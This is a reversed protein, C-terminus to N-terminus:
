VRSRANANQDRPEILRFTLSWGFLLVAVVGFFVKEFGIIDVLAGVGASFLVAPLAMGLGLTSLYIPQHDADAIELTYNSFTRMTVPTLGLLFFVVQFGFQSTETAVGYRLFFMTLLPAACLVLMTWNLARRYGFRDAIQGIPISFFGAGLNQAIVWPVCAALGWNLNERVYAQYHPVLTISVGYTAAIIVLLRFNRDTKLISISNAFVQVLSNSAQSAVVKEEALTLALVSAALMVVATGVFLWVFNDSGTALWPKMLFWAASIAFLSGVSTTLLMLRGRRNAAILKGFLLSVCLNHLGVSFWFVSYIALFLYPLWAPYHGDLLYWILALAGFSLGMVAVFFSLAFKKRGLRRIAESFILPSLSQGLRNLMPLCGRLWGGGGLSDLIAPMVISETKFIWGVRVLTGYFILTVFNRSSARFRQTEDEAANTQQASM